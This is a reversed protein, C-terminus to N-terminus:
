PLVDSAAYTGQSPSIGAINWLMIYEASPRLEEAKLSVTADALRGPATGRSIDAMVPSISTPVLGKNTLEYVTCGAKVTATEWDSPGDNRLAAKVSWAPNATSPPTVITTVLAFDPGPTGIKVPVCLPLDGGSSSWNDRGGAIEIRLEYDGEPLLAGGKDITQIGMTKVMTEGALLKEQLPLRMGSDSVLRGDKYWRAALSMGQLGPYWPKTGANKVTLTVQYLRGPLMVTPVDHRLFKADIDRMGNFSLSNVRTTLTYRSGNKDSARIDTGRTTANWSDLIVWDPSKALLVSWDSEYTKGDERSRYQAASSEPVTGSGPSVAGVDLWGKDSFQVGMGADPNVYGDLNPWRDAYEPNGIWILGRGFDKMFQESCKAIDDTSIEDPSVRSDLVVICSQGGGKEAPLQVVARFRDPVRLYFDKVLDYLQKDDIKQAGVSLFLGLMPYGDGGTELTKLASVMESLNKVSHSGYFEPLVVDAGSKKMGTLQDKQWLPGGDGEPILSYRIMLLKEVLFKDLPQIAEEKPRTLQIDMAGNWEGPGLNGDILPTRDTFKTCVHAGNEIEVITPKDKFKIATWRIPSNIDAEGTVDPSLSVFGSGEGKFRCLLNFGMTQGPKPPGGMESWPIALEATYGIDRDDSRNLTGNVRKAYKFSFIKKPVATGNEGVTFSSGGGASVAMHYTNPTRASSRAHDTEFFVEVDDDEWPNSMHTTNTSILNPDQVEFAAYFYLDDWATYCSIRDAASLASALLLIACLIFICRSIRM